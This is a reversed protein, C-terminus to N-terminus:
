DQGVALALPAPASPLHIERVLTELPGEADPEAAAPADIRWTFARSLAYNVVAGAVAGALAALFWADAFTKIAVALGESILAGALCSAYFLGLGKLMAPGTLRADRFTLANNLFFNSTMATLIALAQALWFPAGFAKALGLAALHVGVGVAGVAAFLTFRASLLGNSRKAVILAVLDAMVRFDLKSEGAIRPRLAGRAEVTRPARRGSAILDLLIKFGVGSLRPRVAEYWDRQFVFQGSMPDTVRVGLAFRTVHTAIRSIADRFGTLGTGSDDAYRSCLAVDAGTEVLRDYIERLKRPDHQGDGDMVGLVEGRAADWGAIAASALGRVGSRRILRVNPTRAIVALVAEATREDASDDVVIIEHAVPALAAGVEDIVRGICEHEDLTCIVLSLAPRGAPRRLRQVHGIAEAAIAAEAPAADLPAEAARWAVLGAIVLALAIAPPALAAAITVQSLCGLVASAIAVTWLAQRTTIRGGVGLSANATILIAMAPALMELDYGMLRPNLLQAAGVGLLMTETGSLRLRRSLRHAALTIMAAFLAFGAIAMPTPLALPAIWGLFGVGPRGTLVVKDLAAQWAANDAGATLFGAAIVAGAAAAGLVSRVARTALPARDLLLVILYTAFVPKVAAALAVAAIFPLRRRPFALLSALVLGHCLIAINGCSIVGGTILGLGALRDRASAAFARTRFLALGLWACAAVYLSVYVAKLATLGFLATLLGAARAVMPAYVFAAPRLGACAGSVGYIPLGHQAQAGACAIADFDNWWWYGTFLRSILAVTLPLSLLAALLWTSLPSRAPLAPSEPLRGDFTTM